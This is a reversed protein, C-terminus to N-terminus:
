IEGGPENGVASRAAIPWLPHWGRHAACDGALCYFHFLVVAPQSSQSLHASARGWHLVGLFANALFGYAIANTHVMRWRGPSFIEMGSLPNWHVLQLAVLIGGLMSIFMFTLAAFFYWRVLREDVLDRPLEVAQAPAASEPSM